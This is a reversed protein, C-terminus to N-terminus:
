VARQLVLDRSSHSLRSPRGPRGGDRNTEVTETGYLLMQLLLLRTSSTKRTPHALRGHLCNLPSLTLRSLVVVSFEDLLAMVHCHGHM